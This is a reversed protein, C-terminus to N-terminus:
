RETTPPQAPPNVYVLHGGHKQVLIRANDPNHELHYLRSFEAYVKKDACIEEYTPLWIEDRDPEGALARWSQEPADRSRVSTGRGDVLGCTDGCSGLRRSLQLWPIA